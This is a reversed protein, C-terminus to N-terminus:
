MTVIRVRLCPFNRYGCMRLASAPRRMRACEDGAGVAVGRATAGVAMRLVHAHAAAGRGSRSLLYVLGGHGASGRACRNCHAGFAVSAGGGHQSRVSAVAGEVCPRLRLGSRCGRAARRRRKQDVAARGTDVLAVQMRQYTGHSVGGGRGVM